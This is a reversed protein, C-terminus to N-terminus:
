TSLLPIRGLIWKQRNLGLHTKLASVNTRQKYMTLRFRFLLPVVFVGRSVHLCRDIDPSDSVSSSSPNEREMVYGFSQQINNFAQPQQATVYLGTPVPFGNSNVMTYQNPNSVNGITPHIMMPVRIAPPLPNNRQRVLNAANLATKDMSYVDCQFPSGNCFQIYDYLTYFDDDRETRILLQDTFYGSEVWQIM